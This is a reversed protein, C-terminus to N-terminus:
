PEHSCHRGPERTRLRPHSHSWTINALSRRNTTDKIIKNCIVYFQGRSFTCKVGPRVPRHCPQAFMVVRQNWLITVRSSPFQGRSCHSGMGAERWGRPVLLRSETGTRRGTRVTRPSPTGQLHDRPDQEHKHCKQAPWGRATLGYTVM